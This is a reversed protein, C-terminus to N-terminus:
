VFPMMGFVGQVFRQPCQEHIDVLGQVRDVCLLDIQLFTQMGFQWFQSLFKYDNNFKQLNFPITTRTSKLPNPKPWALCTVGAFTCATTLM